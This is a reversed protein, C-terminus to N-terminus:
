KPQRKGNAINISFDIDGATYWTGEPGENELFQLGHKRYFAIEEKTYYRLAPDSDSDSRFWSMIKSLTGGKACSTTTNGTTANRTDPFSSPSEVTDRDSSSAERDADGNSSSVHDEDRPEEYGTDTDRDVSSNEALPGKDRTDADENCLEENDKMDSLDTWFLSTIKGLVASLTGGQAITDGQACTSAMPEDHVVVVSGRTGRAAVISRGQVSISSRTGGRAMVISGGEARISSMTGGHAVVISGGKARISSMTGGHAM